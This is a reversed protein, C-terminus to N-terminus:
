FKFRIRFAYSFMRSLGRYVFVSCELRESSNAQFSNQSTMRPMTPTGFDPSRLGASVTSRLAATDELCRRHYLWHDVVAWFSSFTGCKKIFHFYVYEIRYRHNYYTPMITRIGIVTIM